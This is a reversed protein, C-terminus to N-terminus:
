YATHVYFKLKKRKKRKRLHYGITNQEFHPSSTGSFAYKQELHPALVLLAISAPMEVVRCSRFSANVLVPSSISFANEIAAVSILFAKL